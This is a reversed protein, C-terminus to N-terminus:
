WNFFPQAVSFYSFSNMARFLLFTAFQNWQFKMVFFCWWCLLFFCDVCVCACTHFFSPFIAPNITSNSDGGICLLLLVGHPQNILLNRFMTISEYINQINIQKQKQKQKNMQKHTHIRAHKRANTSAQTGHICYM